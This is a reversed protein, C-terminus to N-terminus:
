GMHAYRKNSENLIKSAEDKTLYPVNEQVISLYAQM